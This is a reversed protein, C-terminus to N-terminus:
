TSALKDTLLSSASESSGERWEPWEALPALDSTPGLASM